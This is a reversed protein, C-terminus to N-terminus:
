PPRLPPADNAASHLARVGQGSSGHQVATTHRWSSYRQLLGQRRAGQRRRGTASRCGELVAARGGAGSKRLHGVPWVREVDPQLVALGDVAAGLLCGCGRGVRQRLVAVEKRPQPRRPQLGSHSTGTRWRQRRQGMGAPALRGGKVGGLVCSSKCLGWGKQGIRGWSRGDAKATSSEETCQGLRAQSMRYKM